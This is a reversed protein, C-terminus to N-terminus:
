RATRPPEARLPELELDRGMQGVVIKARQGHQECALYRENTGPWVYSVAAPARCGDRDQCRGITGEVVDSDGAKFDALEEALDDREKVVRALEARFRDLEGSLQRKIEELDRALEAKVQKLAGDLAQRWDSTSTSPSPSPSPPPIPQSGSKSIHEDAM